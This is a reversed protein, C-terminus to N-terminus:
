YQIITIIASELLKGALSHHTEQPPHTNRHTYSLLVAGELLPVSTGRGQWAAALPEPPHLASTTERRGRPSDLSHKVRMTPPERAGAFPVDRRKRGQLLLEEVKGQGTRSGEWTTHLLSQRDPYSPLLLRAAELSGKCPPFCLIKFHTWHILLGPQGM